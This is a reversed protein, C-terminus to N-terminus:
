VESKLEDQQELKLNQGEAYVHRKENQLYNKLYNALYFEKKLLTLCIRIKFNKKLYNARINMSRSSECILNKYIM